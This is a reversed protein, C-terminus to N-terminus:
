SMVGSISATFRPSPTSLAAVADSVRRSTGASVSSAIGFDSFSSLTDSSLLLFVDVSAVQSEEVYAFSITLATKGESVSESTELM